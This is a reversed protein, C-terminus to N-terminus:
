STAVLGIVCVVILTVIAASALVEGMVSKKKLLNGDVILWNKM